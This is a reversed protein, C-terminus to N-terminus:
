FELDYWLALYPDIELLDSMADPVLLYDLILATMYPGDASHLVSVYYNHTGDTFCSAYNSHSQEVYGTKGGIFTLGPVSYDGNLFFSTNEIYIENEQGQSIIKITAEKTSELERFLDYSAAKRILLNLDYPSTYHEADFLGHPNAFHTDNMGLEKAKQNMLDAFSEISGAIEIAIACAVDNYSETLLAYLMDRMSMQDGEELWLLMSDPDDYCGYLSGITVPADLDKTYELALITTMLKTTSAPYLKAHANEEYLVKGTEDTVYVGGVKFRSALEMDYITQLKDKVESSSVTRPLVLSLQRDPQMLYNTEEQSFIKHSRRTILLILIVSLAVILFLCVILRM